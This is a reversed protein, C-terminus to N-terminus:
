GPCTSLKNKRHLQLTFLLGKFLKPQTMPLGGLCSSFAAFSWARNVIRNLVKSAIVNTLKEFIENKM